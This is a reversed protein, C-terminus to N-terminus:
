VSSINIVINKPEIVFGRDVPYSKTLRLIYKSACLLTRQSARYISCTFVIHLGGLLDCSYFISSKGRRVIANTELINTPSVLLIGAATALCDRTTVVNNRGPTQNNICRTDWLIPVERNPLFTWGTVTAVNLSWNHWRSGLSVTVFRPCVYDSQIM